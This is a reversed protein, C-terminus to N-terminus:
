QRCGSERPDARSMKVIVSFRLIGRRCRRSMQMDAMVEELVTSRTSPDVQVVLWLDRERVNRATRSPRWGPPSM